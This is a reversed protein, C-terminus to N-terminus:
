HRADWKNPVLSCQIDLHPGPDVTNEIAFETNLLQPCMSSFVVNIM